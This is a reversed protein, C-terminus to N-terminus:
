AIGWAVLANRAFSINIFLIQWFHTAIHKMNVSYNYSNMSSALLSSNLHKIFGWIFHCIHAIDSINLISYERNKEIVTIKLKTSSSLVYQLVINQHWLANCKIIIGCTNMIFYKGTQLIYFKTVNMCFLIRDLVHLVKKTM